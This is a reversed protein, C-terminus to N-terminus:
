WTETLRRGRAPAEPRFMTVTGLAVVGAETAPTATTRLSVAATVGRPPSGREPLPLEQAELRGEHVEPQSEDDEHEV